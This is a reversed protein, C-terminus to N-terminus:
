NWVNPSFIDKLVDILEHTEFFIGCSALLMVFQDGIAEDRVMPIEAVMQSLDVNDQCSTVKWCSQIVIIFLQIRRLMKCNDDYERRVLCQDEQKRM